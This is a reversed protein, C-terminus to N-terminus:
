WYIKTPDSASEAILSDSVSQREFFRQCNAIISQAAQLRISPSNESNEMIEAVTQVAAQLKDGMARTANRLLEQRASLYMTKFERDNMREYMARVSLGCARSAEAITTSSLMATVIEEDTVASQNKKAM